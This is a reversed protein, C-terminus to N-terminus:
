LHVFNVIKDAEGFEDLNPRNYDLLSELLHLSKRVLLYACVDINIIASSSQLAKIGACIPWMTINGKNSVVPDVLRAEERGFSRM